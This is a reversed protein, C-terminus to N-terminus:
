AFPTLSVSLPQNERVSNEEARGVLRATPNEGHMRFFHELDKGSMGRGNDSIIIGKRGHEVRVQVRPSIGAEVYQLSNVVYEWAVAAETKFSAASALLDRGVHSTVKLQPKATM